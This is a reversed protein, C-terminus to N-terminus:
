CCVFAAVGEGGLEDLLVLDRFEVVQVEIEIADDVIAGVRVIAVSM